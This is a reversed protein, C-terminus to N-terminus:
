SCYCDLRVKKLTLLSKVDSTVNENVYSCPAMEGIRSKKRSFGFSTLQRHFSAYTSHISPFYQKLVKSELNTPDHVHIRGNSWEIVDSDEMNNSLMKTLRYLFPHNLADRLEKYAPTVEITSLCHAQYDALCPVTCNSQSSEQHLLQLQENLDSEENQVLLRRRKLKSEQKISTARCGRKVPRPTVKRSTSNSRNEEQSKRDNRTDEKVEIRRRKPERSVTSALVLSRGSQGSHEKGPTPTM